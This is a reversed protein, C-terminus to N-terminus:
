EVRRKFPAPLKLLVAVHEFLSIIGVVWIKTQATAM